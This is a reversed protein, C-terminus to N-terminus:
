VLAQEIAARRAKTTAGFLKAKRAKSNRRVFRGDHEVVKEKV